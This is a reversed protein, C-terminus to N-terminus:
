AFVSQESIHKLVRRLTSVRQDRRDRMHRVFDIGGGTIKGFSTQPVASVRLYREVIEPFRELTHLAAAADAAVAAISTEQSSEPPTDAM